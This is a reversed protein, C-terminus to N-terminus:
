FGPTEIRNLSQPILLLSCDYEVTQGANKIEFLKPRYKNLFLFEKVQGGNRFFQPIHIEKNFKKRLM